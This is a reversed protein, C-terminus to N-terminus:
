ALIKDCLARLQLVVERPMHMTVRGKQDGELYSFTMTVAPARLRDGRSSGSVVETRWEVRELVKGHDLFSQRVIDARIATKAADYGSLLVQSLAEDRDTVAALDEAFVAPSLDRAAAQRVLFRAAKLGRSTPGPDAAHAACFRELAETAGPRTEEGLFLGLVEWLRARASGPLDKLALFDAVIERPAGHGGLSHLRLPLIDDSGTLGM